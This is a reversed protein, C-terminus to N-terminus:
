AARFNRNRHSVARQLELHRGFNQIFWPSAFVKPTPVYDGTALTHVFDRPANKGRATACQNEGDDQRGYRDQCVPWGPM